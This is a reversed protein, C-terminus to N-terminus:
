AYKEETFNDPELNVKFNHAPQIDKDTKKDFPKPINEDEACHVFHGLDFHNRLRKKERCLAEDASRGM